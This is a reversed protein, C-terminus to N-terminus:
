RLSSLVNASVGNEANRIANRVAEPTVYQKEDPMHFMPGMVAPFHFDVGNRSKVFPNIIVDDPPMGVLDAYHSQVSCFFLAQNLLSATCSADM